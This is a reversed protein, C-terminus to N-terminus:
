EQVRITNAHPHLRVGDADMEPGPVTVERYRIPPGMGNMRNKQINQIIEYQRKASDCLGMRYGDAYKEAYKLDIQHNMYEGLLLTGAGVGLTAWMQKRPDQGDMLAYTAGGAAVAAGGAVADGGDMGGCSSMLTAAATALFIKKKM